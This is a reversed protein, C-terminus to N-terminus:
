TRSNYETGSINKPGGGFNNSNWHVGAFTAAGSEDASRMSNDGFTNDNIDGIIAGGSAGILRIGRRHHISTNGNVRLRTITHVGCEIEIGNASTDSGGDFDNNSIRLMDICGLALVDIGRSNFSQNGIFSIGDGQGSYRFAGSLCNVIQNHAVQINRVVALAAGSTENSAISVGIADTITTPNDCYVQNGAIRVNHTSSALKAFIGKCNNDALSSITIVNDTCIWNTATMTEGGGSESDDVLLVGASRPNEIDNECVLIQTSVIGLNPGAVFIAFQKSNTLRNGRIRINNGLGKLTPAITSSTGGVSIELHEHFSNTISVNRCGDSWFSFLSFEMNVTADRSNTFWVRDVWINECDRMQICAGFNDPSGTGSGTDTGPNNLDMKLNEFGVNQIQTTNRFVRWGGAGTSKLVTGYGEGRVLTNSKLAVDQLGEYIKASFQLTGGTAPIANAAEQVSAYADVHVVNRYLAFYDPPITSSTLSSDTM